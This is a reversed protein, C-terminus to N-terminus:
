RLDHGATSLVAHLADGLSGALWCRNSHNRRFRKM